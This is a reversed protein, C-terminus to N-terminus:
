RNGAHMRISLMNAYNSNSEKFTLALHMNAICVRSTFGCSACPRQAHGRVIAALVQLGMTGCRNVVLIYVSPRLSPAVWFSLFLLCASILKTGATVVCRLTALDLYCTLWIRINNAAATSYSGHHKRNTTQTNQKNYFVKPSVHARLLRETACTECIQHECKGHKHVVSSSSAHVYCRM